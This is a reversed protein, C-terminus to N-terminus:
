ESGLPDYMALYDWPQADTISAFDINRKAYVHRRSILEFKKECSGTM